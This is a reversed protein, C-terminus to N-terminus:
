QTNRAQLIADGHDAANLQLLCSESESLDRLLKCRWTVETHKAAAKHRLESQQVAGRVVQHFTLLLGLIILTALIVPWGPSRAEVPLRQWLRQLERQFADFGSAEGNFWKFTTSNNSM